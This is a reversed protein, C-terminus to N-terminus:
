LGEMFDNILLQFTVKMSLIVVVLPITCVYMNFFGAMNKMTGLMVLINGVILQPLAFYGLFFNTIKSFEKYKEKITEYEKSCIM